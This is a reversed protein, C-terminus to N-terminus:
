SAVPQLPTGIRRLARLWGYWGDLGDGRTASVRLCRISPNVTRAHSEAREVDFAVHPALDM